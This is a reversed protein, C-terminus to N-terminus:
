VSHSRQRSSMIKKKIKWNEFNADIKNECFLRNPSSGLLGLIFKVIKAYFDLQPSPLKRKKLYFFFHHTKSAM